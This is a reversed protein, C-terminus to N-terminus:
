TDIPRLYTALTKEVIINPDINKTNGDFEGSCVLLTDAGIALGVQADTYIRDGAVLVKDLPTIINKIYALLRSSPKGFHESPSIGTTVEILKGIAGCDPIPGYQSPCALDIHTLVYPIGNNIFRCALELKHYTIEKDFAIIVLDPTKSDLRIQTNSYIENRFAKTGVVYVKGYNSSKLYNTIIPVPSIINNVDGPLNFLEIKNVYDLTSVSTNNTMYYFETGLKHLRRIEADANDIITGSLHVTGDLDLFAKTYM